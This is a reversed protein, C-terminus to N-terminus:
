VTKVWVCLLPAYKRAQNTRWESKDLVVGDNRFFDFASSIAAATEHVRLNTRPELYIYSGHCAIFFYLTGVECREPLQGTYDLHLTTSKPVRNADFPEFYKLKIELSKNHLRLQGDVSQNGVYPQATLSKNLHGKATAESSPMHKRVLTSTLRPCQNPAAIYGCQVAQLFTTPISHGMCAHIFRVYDENKRADEHMLFVPEMHEEYLPACLGHASVSAKDLIIHWKITATYAFKPATFAAKCGRDAFPAMGLLNHVLDENQFIYAIVTITQVTLM